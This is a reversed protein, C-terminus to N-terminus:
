WQVVQSAGLQTAETVNTISKPSLKRMQLITETIGLDSDKKLTYMFNLTFSKSTYTSSRFLYIKM